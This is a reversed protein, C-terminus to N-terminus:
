GAELARAIVRQLETQGFPKALRPLTLSRVDDIEGYGSALVVPTGPWRKGIATALDLGTMRPMAQDTIVLDIDRDTELVSLAKDGSHAEIVQHGLDELMMVTNMLVLADDDVALVRLSRGAQAPAEPAVEAPEEATTPTDVAKLWIEVTTGVGKRSRIVIRGGSQEAIGQVMSLGMGTGKGIGKTTFFPDAARALTAEDMGEGTDEVYLCVYNGAPLRGITNDLAAARAGIILTGGEPMADRANVALNLLASDIQNPDALVAPLGLPFRTEILISPGLTRGLLNSMGRVLDPLDVAKQELEQKRAFALMRQTLKAGRQAAQTANELLRADREELTLRRELAELSGLVVMLLNNFDHAVGGTLQGIAELKQAQFLEERTQDLRKQQEMKETVDRTIKAFGVLEGADDYIADIVVSAWFRSGDKRVRWGESHFHGQQRATQLGHEPKGALRDEEPYFRSFHQGIIEDAQYGKIREAGMNWSSVEGSPSLMYIAYDTVNTVLRRFQEESSALAQEARKRESLDRTVKAFGLLQGTPSRIADIVVSTWFRTGDKRVCWEELEFRGEETARALAREPLGGARDEPTYFVSFHQGIIEQARYGKIREAGANWTAVRGEPDLMYIAYDTIAEILLRYRANQEDVGAWASQETM